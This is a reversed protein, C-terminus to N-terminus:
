LFHKSLNDAPMKVGIDENSSIEEDDSATLGKLERYSPSVYDDLNKAYKPKSNSILQTVLSNQQAQRKEEKTAVNAPKKSSFM